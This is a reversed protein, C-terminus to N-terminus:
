SRRVGCGCNPAPSQEDARATAELRSRLQDFTLHARAAALALTEAGGCCADIGLEALVPLTAPRCYVLNNVTLDPRLIM